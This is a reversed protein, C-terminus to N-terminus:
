PEESRRGAEGPTQALLLRPSGARGWDQGHSPPQWRPEGERPRPAPPHPSQQHCLQVWGLALSKPHPGEGPSLAVQRIAPAAGARLEAGPGTPSVQKVLFACARTIHQLRPHPGACGVRVRDPAPLHLDAAAGATGRSLSTPPCPQRQLLHGLPRGVPHWMLCWRPGSMAKGPETSAQGQLLLTPWQVVLCAPSWGQVQAGAEGGHTPAERGVSDRGM